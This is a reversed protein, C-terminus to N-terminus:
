IGAMTQRASSAPGARRVLTGAIALTAFASLLLIIGTGLAATGQLNQAPVIVASVAAWAVLIGGTVYHLPYRFLRALPFLHLGVIATIASMVYADIHFRAFSFAVISIAIWQVANVWMFARGCTQDAPMKPFRKAQRLLWFATTLLVLLDALLWSVTAVSLIQKAYLALLVWLAGFASFFISGIARGVLQNATIVTKM